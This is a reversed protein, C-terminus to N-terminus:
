GLAVKNGELTIAAKPNAAVAKAIELLRPLWNPSQARADTAVDNVVKGSGFAMELATLATERTADNAVVGSARVRGDDRREIALRPAVTTVPTVATERPQVTRTETVPERREVLAPATQPPYEITRPPRAERRAVPPTYAGHERVPAFARTAYAGLLALGVLPLAWWFWSTDDREPTTEYTRRPAERVYERPAAAYTERRPAAYTERRPAAYT